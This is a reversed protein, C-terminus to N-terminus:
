STFKLINSLVRDCCSDFSENAYIAAIRKQAKERSKSAGSICKHNGTKKCVKYGKGTKKINFPM